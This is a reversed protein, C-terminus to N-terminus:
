PAPAVTLVARSGDWESLPACHWSWDADLREHGPLAVRGNAWRLAMWPDIDRPAWPFLRELVRACLDAPPDVAVDLGGGIDAAHVLIEDCGMAAFGEPDALGVPHFARSEPAGADVLAALIAAASEVADLLTPIDSTPNGDRVSRVRASAQRALHAAYFFLADTIHDLTERCSWELEGARTEWDGDVAPALTAVAFRSATRLDNAGVHM